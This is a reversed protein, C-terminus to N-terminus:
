AARGFLAGLFGRKRTGYLKLGAADAGRQLPAFAPTPSIGGTGYEIWHAKWDHANVRGTAIGNEVGAEAKISGVYAGTEYPHPGSSHWAARSHDAVLEARNLMERVMAPSASLLAIGAYNPKFSIGGRIGRFLATQLDVPSIGLRPMGLGPAFGVSQFRRIGFSSFTLSRTTRIAM